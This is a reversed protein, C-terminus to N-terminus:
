TLQKHAQIYEKFAIRLAEALLKTEEYSRDGVSLRLFPPSNEAMAAAASIRPISFGFSVGKTLSVGMEKAVRLATEIFSNLSDRQKLADDQFEFTMLGGTSNFKRALEHDPHSESMPYLASVIGQLEPDNEIVEGVLLANRAFRRMRKKHTERDYKPFINAASDYMITGTNRRLRDFTKTLEVPVAVLGGMAIDLGLQLYKSCSDYYLVKVHPNAKAPTFPDLEGSMLSGDIVLYIDDELEMKAVESVVSDVDTMQLGPTNTLPDLYVVKPKTKSILKLIEQTDHIDERQVNVGRLRSIQEDTEFYIYQPILVTDGPELVYRTLYSETMTYAAMGSSTMLLGTERQDIGLVEAMQTEVNKLQNSEYRNYNVGPNGQADLNFFMTDWSQGYSASRWDLVMSAGMVVHLLARYRQIYETVKRNYESPSMQENLDIKEERSMRQAVEDLSKFAETASEDAQLGELECYNLYESLKGRIDSMIGRVHDFRGELYKIDEEIDVSQNTSMQETGKMEAGYDIGRTVPADQLREGYVNLFPVLAQNRFPYHMIRSLNATTINGGSFILGMRGYRKSDIKGALIAALGAAGSAEVMQSEHFLLALVAAALEEESVSIVDDVVTKILDLTVSDEELNVALGDAFTPYNVVRTVAGQELSKGVSAYTEPEVGVVKIGPKINKAAVGVGSILGGGGVPVIITDLDPVQELFEIGLTGQGHIVGPDNYPSVFDWGQRKALEMAYATAEELSAGHPVISHSYASLRNRKLQSANTPVCLTTPIALQKGAEAVALAHNGASAAIIPRGEEQHSLRNYAGRFKFSGTIQQNEFKGV